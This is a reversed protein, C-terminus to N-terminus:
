RILNKVRDAQTPTDLRLAIPDKGLLSWYTVLRDCKENFDLEKGDQNKQNLRQFFLFLFCMLLRLTHFVFPFNINQVHLVLICVNYGFTMHIINKDVM